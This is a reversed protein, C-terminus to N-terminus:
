PDPRDISIIAAKRGHQLFISYKQCLLGQPKFREMRGFFYTEVPLFDWAFDYSNEPESTTISSLPAKARWKIKKVV